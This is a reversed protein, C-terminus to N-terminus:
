EKLFNYMVKKLFSIKYLLSQILSFDKKAVKYNCFWNKCSEFFRAIGSILSSGYTKGDRIVYTTEMKCLHNVYM